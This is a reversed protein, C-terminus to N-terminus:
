ILNLTKEDILKVRRVDNEYSKQDRPNKSLALILSRQHFVTAHIEMPPTWVMQNKGVLFHEPKRESGVEKFYYTFEGEIVFIYHWDTVHYHNSRVTDRESSILSVNSLPLNTLLQISGRIDDHSDVLTVLKSKLFNGSEDVEPKDFM